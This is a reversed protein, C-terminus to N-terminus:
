SKSKILKKIEDEFVKKPREGIFKNVINGEQDLIFTTPIADINGYKESIKDDGVLVIYDIKLKHKKMGKRIADVGGEDLSIGIIEFGQARDKYIENFSPIERRCPPCWTAWFDLIVVKGKFDSLSVKKGSLDPLTFDPAKTKNTKGVIERNEEAAGSQIITEEGTEKGGGGCGALLFLFFLGINGFNEGINKLM